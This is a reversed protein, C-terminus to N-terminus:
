VGYSLVCAFLCAFVLPVQSDPPYLSVLRCIDAYLEEQPVLEGNRFVALEAMLPLNESLPTYQLLSPLSQPPLDLTFMPSTVILSM